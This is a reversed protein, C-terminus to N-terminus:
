PQTNRPREKEVYRKATPRKTQEWRSCSSGERIFASCTGSRNTYYFTM